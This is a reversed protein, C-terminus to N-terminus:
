EFDNRRKKSQLKHKYVAFARDLEEFDPMNFHKMNKDRQDIYWEKDTKELIKKYYRPVGIKSGGSVLFGNVFMSKGCLEGVDYGIGPRNSMVIFEPCRGNLGSITKNLKKATYGAVYCCTNFNVEDLTVFGKNWVQNLKNNYLFGNDNRGDVTFELGFIIAHYHPRMTLGGYEGCAFYRCKGFEKRLRKWFLQLDRKNLGHDSPIHQDDYTLTIFVGKEGCSSFEHMCRVAWEKAKNARCGICSGCNIFFDRRRAGSSYTIDQGFRFNKPEILVYRSGSPKEILAVPLPSYCPM